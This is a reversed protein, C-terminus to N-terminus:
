AAPVIEAASTTKRTALLADSIYSIHKRPVYLISNRCIDALSTPTARSIAPNADRSIVHM